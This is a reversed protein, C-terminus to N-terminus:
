QVSMDMSWLQWQLKYRYGLSSGLTPVALSAGTTAHLETHAAPQVWPASLLGRQAGRQQLLTVAPLEM